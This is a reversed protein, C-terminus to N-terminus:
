TCPTGEPATGAATTVAHRRYTATALAVTRGQADRAEAECFCVSRGGGTARAATELAGSPLRVFALQLDVATVGQGLRERAAQVMAGDLRAALAGRVAAGDQSLDASVESSPSM